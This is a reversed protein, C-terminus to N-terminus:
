DTENCCRKCPVYGDDIAKQASIEFAHKIGSCHPDHHYKNSTGTIWVVREPQIDMNLIQGLYTADEPFERCHRNVERVIASSLDDYPKTYKLGMLLFLLQNLGKPLMDESINGNFNEFRVNCDSHYNYIRGGHAALNRYDLCVFLTDMMILKLNDVSLDMSDVDYLHYVMQEKEHPKFFNIFNIITSFYLNKFLIWPPVIEHVERYHSVPDKNSDLAEKITHIINRM